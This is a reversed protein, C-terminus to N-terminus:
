RGPDYDWGAARIARRLEPYWTFVNSEYLGFREVSLGSYASALALIAEASLLGEREKWGNRSDV